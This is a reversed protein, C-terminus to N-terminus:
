HSRKPEVSRKEKRRKPEERRKPERRVRTEAPGKDLQSLFGKERATDEEKRQSKRLNLAISRSFGNEVRYRM